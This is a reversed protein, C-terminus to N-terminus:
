SVKVIVAEGEGIGGCISVLGLGGGRRRLEYILTMVLRAGTAGTPHGIAIAGGNVNTRARIEDAQKRDGGALLLTSVLPVAAFAENIEILDIDDLTLSVKKLALKAATAPISAIGDPHGSAMAWGTLTALPEIGRREAEARSMLVVASAGTNLGPANGATVTPSGYITPLRALKELSTDPRASEDSDFLIPDGRRQPIPVPLIEDSFKCAAQAELYRQHSRLAWADQEERGIGHEVAEEGAQVARPKGTMPCAIVLQDKLTIDGLTNGWRAAHVFYPVLSMNETGGAVAVTADGLRISRSAQNIATLSSCCARDVTFANKHEPLGAEILVQRAISRDSGPLNVGMVLENVAEPEVKARRLAETVVLGGLKPLTFDKLTGGFKGFPTRVASAVVVENMKTVGKSTINLEM